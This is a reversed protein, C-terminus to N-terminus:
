GGIPKTCLSYHNSNAPSYSIKKKYAEFACELRQEIEVPMRRHVIGQEANEFANQPHQMYHKYNALMDIENAYHREAFALLTDDQYLPTQMVSIIEGADVNEDIFHLTNGIPKGEIIAWKFADLGRMIPIIGSHCNIIRKGLIAERSIVGAGAILYVDCGSQIDSDSACEVFSVGYLKAMESTEMGALQNPRHKFLEERTPRANFKLAFIVYRDKNTENRFLQALVQETKLHRHNYTVIGILSM